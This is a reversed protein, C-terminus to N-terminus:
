LRRAYLTFSELLYSDANRVFRSRKDQVRLYCNEGFHQYMDVLSCQAFDLFVNNPDKHLSIHVAFVLYYKNVGSSSGLLPDFGTAIGGGVFLFWHQCLLTKKTEKQNNTTCSEWIIDERLYSVVHHM